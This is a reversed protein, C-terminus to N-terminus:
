TANYANTLNLDIGARVMLKVSGIPTSSTIEHLPADGDNGKVELQPRFELLAGLEDRDLGKHVLTRGDGFKRNVDAGGDALIRIIDARGYVVANELPEWNSDNRLDDPPDIEAGHQVLLRVADTHDGWVAHILAPDEGDPRISPNAGKELLMKTMEESKVALILATSKGKDLRDPDIDSQELLIRLMEVDSRTVAIHIPLAGDTGQCNVDAGNQLLYEAIAHRNPDDSWCTWYLATCESADVANVRAGKEVLLKVVGFRDDSKASSTAAVLIPPMLAEHNPDVGKNLLLECIEMIGNSAAYRLPTGLFGVMEPNAGGDLLARVCEVNSEEAACGLPSWGVEDQDEVTKLNVDAKSEVLARVAKPKAWLSADYLPTALDDDKANVDAGYEVLLKVLEAHGYTAALHLPTSKFSGSHNANAGHKLLIKATEFNGTRTALRLATMPFSRAPDEADPPCGVEILRSLAKSLGLWSARGVITGRSEWPFDPYNEKIYDILEIWATEDGYAGAGTLAEQLTEVSYERRPLLQRVTQSAGNLCAETLGASLDDEGDRWNEALDALGVGALAPYLCEFPEHSRTLPNALVWQARTWNPVAGSKVFSEIDKKTDSDTSVLSLHHVWFEVAYDQLTTRDCILALRIDNYHSNDYLTVLKDKAVDSTLFALCTKTIAYHADKRMADWFRSDEPETSSKTMLVERIRNTSIVVDNHELTVIGALWTQLKSILQNALSVTPLLDDSNTKGLGIMVATTLEWLTPPRVAYLIWSLAHCVLNRDPVNSLIKWVISELSRGEMPGLIDSVSQRAPWQENGKVHNVVLDRVEPELTMIAKLQEEFRTKFGRVEPRERLLSKRYSDAIIDQDTEPTSQSLDLIPWNSLEELLAGPQRSTVLVRWPREQTESVYRFQNLFFKRSVPECEDLHNIVCSIGEIEGFIRYYEFWHLLDIYNWSRDVRQHEFQDNFQRSLSPFHGLLQVLFTALMDRIDDRRVDYRDFTFYLVIQGNRDSHLNDLDYFISESALRTGSDGHLYLIQPKKQNYWSKYVGNDRIWAYPDDPAATTQLPLLPSAASLLSRENDLSEKDARILSDIIKIKKEIIARDDADALGGPLRIEFPVGMTATFKDFVEDIACTDNEAFM